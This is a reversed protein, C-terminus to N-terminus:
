LWLWPGRVLLFLFCRYTNQRWHFNSSPEHSMINMLEHAPVAVHSISCCQLVWSSMYFFCIWVKAFLYIIKKLLCTCKGHEHHQFVLNWYCPYTICLKKFVQSLVYFNLFYPLCSQVTCYMWRGYLKVHKIDEDLPQWKHCIFNM